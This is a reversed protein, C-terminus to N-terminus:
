PCSAVWLGGTGLWLCQGWCLAPCAGFGVSPVQQTLLLCGCAMSGAGLLGMWLM